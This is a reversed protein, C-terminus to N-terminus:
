PAAIEAESPKSQANKRASIFRQNIQFPRYGPALALGQTLLRQGLDWQGAAALAVSWNNITALLNDHAEQCQPDLTLATLNARAAADFREQRLLEVGRNYHFVALFAREDLVRASAARRQQDAVTKSVRGSALSANRALIDFWDACTTEVELPGAATAVRCWVHGPASVARADLDFEAALALFVASATACNFAGGDLTAVLDSGSTEYAGRLIRRHMFAHIAQATQRQDGHVEGSARLADVLRRFQDIYRQRQGEPTGGAGLVHRVLTSADGSSAAAFTAHNAAAWDPSKDARAIEIQPLLSALIVATLRITTLVVNM